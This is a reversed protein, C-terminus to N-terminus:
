AQGPNRRRTVKILSIGSRRSYDRLCQDPLAMNAPWHSSIPTAMMDSMGYLDVLRYCCCTGRAQWKPASCESHMSSINMAAGKELWRLGPGAISMACKSAAVGYRPEVKGYPM